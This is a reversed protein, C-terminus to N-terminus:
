VIELIYNKGYALIEKEMKELLDMKTTNLRPTEQYRSRLKWKTAEGGAEDIKDLEFLQKEFATINSMHTLLLRAHSQGFKRYIGFSDCEELFAATRPWGMPYEDDQGTLSAIILTQTNYRCTKSEFKDYGAKYDDLEHNL